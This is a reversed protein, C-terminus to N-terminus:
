RKKFEESESFLFLLRELILKVGFQVIFLDNWTLLWAILLCFKHGEVVQKSQIVFAANAVNGKQELPASGKCM